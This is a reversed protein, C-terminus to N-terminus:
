TQQWTHCTTHGNLQTEPAGALWRGVLVKLTIAQNGIKWFCWLEVYAINKDQWAL